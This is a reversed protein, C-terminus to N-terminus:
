SRELPHRRAVLGRALGAVLRPTIRGDGLGLEVLTDFARRDRGAAAIGADLVAPSRSLGAAVTTHRLHAGLLRRVARDYRPGASDPDGDALASAAARGAALGTAVAYFIGEGTMPNVLHAADGTLLVRPDSREVRWGSLPLHHARWETGAATSGPLLRELEDLLLRRSPRDRPDVSFEGYGVNSVGDGRDFAWAYSPHRRDGYRIVQVGRRGPPTPAYGRLAVARRRETTRGLARRVVSQAGDAGVVVRAAVDDVSPSGGDRGITRVRHEELRAGVAVAHRVLRDDLVARPIVYVPRRLRGEVSRDRHALELRHLPTWGDVVDRAGVEALADVVHPAVGDGCAKDRPFGDRDLLLVRLTPEAHLAGLATAAGAPGAGVVVVDWPAATM